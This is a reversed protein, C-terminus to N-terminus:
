NITKGEGLLNRKNADNSCHQSSHPSDYMAGEMDVEQPLHQHWKMKLCHFCRLPVSMPKIEKWLQHM